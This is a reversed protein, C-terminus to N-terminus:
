TDLHFESPQNDDEFEMDFEDNPKLGEQVEIM